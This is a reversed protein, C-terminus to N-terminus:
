SHKGCIAERLLEVPGTSRTHSASQQRLSVLERRIQNFSDSVGRWDDTDLLSLEDVPAGEALRQLQRRLQLFPSVFQHTLQLLDYVFIPILLVIGPAWFIAEELCRRTTAAISEDTSSFFETIVLTMMFYLLCALSYFGIRRLLARHVLRDLTSSSHCRTSREDLDM